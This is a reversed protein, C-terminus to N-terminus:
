FRLGKKEPIRGNKTKTQWLVQGVYLTDTMYCHEIELAKLHTGDMYEIVKESCQSCFVQFATEKFDLDHYEYIKWNTTHHSM